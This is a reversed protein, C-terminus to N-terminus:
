ALRRILRDITPAYHRYELEHVRCAVDEPTDGPMVPCREQLVMQGADYHQDILHITIGTERDGDRVVEEHVKMGYLGKGSHRPILSPHINVIRGPYAELLYAPVLLLFGDLVIFDIEHDSLAQMLEIGRAFAERNIYISDIGHREARRAIGAAQRNYVILSVSVDSRGQFYEIIHEANTGEGSGFIAIHKM